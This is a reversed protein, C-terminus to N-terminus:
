GLKGSAGTDNLIGGPSQGAEPTDGRLRRIEREAREWHQVAQDEPYGDEEWYRHALVAIERELDPIDQPQM